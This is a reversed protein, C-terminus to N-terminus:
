LTIKKLEIKLTDEGVYEGTLFYIKNNIGKILGCNRPYDFTFSTVNQRDESFSYCKIKRKERSLTDNVIESKGVEALIAPKGGLSFVQTIRSNNRIYDFIKKPDSNMDQRSPVEKVKVSFEPDLFRNSETEEWDTQIAALDCEHLKISSPYCWSLKNNVVAIGGSFSSISLIDDIGNRYYASWVPKEKEIEYIDIRKDEVTGDLLFCIYKDKWVVFNQIAHKVFRHENIFNGELDYIILKLSEKCWVYVYDSTIYFKDPLFYEGPGEGYQGFKKLQIGEKNYWVLDRGISLLFSSDRFFALDSPSGGVVFINEQLSCETEAPLEINKFAVIREGKSSDIASNCSCLFLILLFLSCYNTKM